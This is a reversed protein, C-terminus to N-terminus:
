ELGLKKLHALSARISELGDPKPHDREIVLWEVGAEEAAKYVANWQIIGSGVDENHPPVGPDFDKVHILKVRGKLRRLETVPDFKGAVVWCIDLEALPSEEPVEHLMVDWATKGDITGEFEFAHNHYGLKFGGAECRKRMDRMAQCYERWAKGGDSYDRPGSPVIVYECGLTKVYDNQIEEFKDQLDKLGVHCGAPKLGVKDMTSKVEAAKHGHLGAFEVGGYGIEKVRALTGLFDAKCEERLTYLQVALPNGTFNM